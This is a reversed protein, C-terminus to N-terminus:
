GIREPFNKTILSLKKRRWASRKKTRGPMMLIERIKQSALVEYNELNSFITLALHEATVREM